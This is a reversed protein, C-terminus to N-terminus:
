ELSLFHLYFVHIDTFNGTFEPCWDVHVTHFRKTARDLFNLLEYGNSPVRHLGARVDMNKLFHQGVSDLYVRNAHKFYLTCEPSSELPCVDTKGTINKGIGFVDTKTQLVVDKGIAPREAHQLFVTTRKCFQPQPVVAHRDADIGPFTRAMRFLGISTSGVTLVADPMLIEVLGPGDCLLVAKDNGAHM